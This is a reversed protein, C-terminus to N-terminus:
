GWYGKLVDCVCASHVKANERSFDKVLLDVIGKVRTYLEQIGSDGEHIKGYRHIM